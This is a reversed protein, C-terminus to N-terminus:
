LLLYDVIEKSYFLGLITPVKKKSIKGRM